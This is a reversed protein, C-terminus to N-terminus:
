DEARPNLEDVTGAAMEHRTRPRAPTTRRGRLSRPLWRARRRAGPSAGSWLADLCTETDVVVDHGIAQEAEPAYRSVEVTTVLRQMAAPGAPTASLPAALAVGTARPSRDEPWGVGLDIATDRLEAWMEEPSADALRRARRRTRITRPLVGLLLAACLGLVIGPLWTSRFDGGGDTGTSGNEPRQPKTGPSVASRSASPSASASPGTSPQASSRTYGPVSGTHSTPTPEFMVWGAGNIYLEPWAHLDHSSFEYTSGKINEGSLFGVSVRAPIDLERALVAMAAAFQECYGEREGPSLFDRLAALGNGPGIRTSYHFDSQFFRQLAVGRAYDTTAGKTERLAISRLDATGAPLRTNAARIEDPAPGAAALDDATLAPRFETLPYTMGATNADGVAQFDLTEESYRWRDGAEISRLYRPVPLWSSALRSTIGVTWDIDTGAQGPSFDVLPMTGSATQSPLRPHFGPRWTDGDFDDLVTLRVYSPAAGGTGASGSRNDVTVRMLPVDPGLVLDRRLDAIPDTIRVPGNGNGSGFGPLRLTPESPLIASGIVAVSLAAAGLLLTGRPRDAADVRRGWRDLRGREDAVLMALFCAGALAFAFWSTPKGLISIPVTYAMLLPLGALAVRSLTVAVLDVVLHVALAGVLLLPVITPVGDTVPARYTGATDVARSVAEVAVRISTPTPWFGAGWFGHVVLLAVLTQASLVVPWALSATRLGAGTAAVLVVGLLVEGLLGDPSESLRAWPGVIVWSTLATLTALVVQSGARRM